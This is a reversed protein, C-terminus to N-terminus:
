APVNVIIKGTNRNIKLLLNRLPKDAPGRIVEGNSSFESGHCPCVLNGNDAKNILCGLHTCRASYAKVKEVSKIVIVKNFFSIGDPLTDPILLQKMQKERLRSRESTSYWAAALPLLAFIGIRRFFERRSLKGEFCNREPSHNDNRKFNKTVKRKKTLTHTM